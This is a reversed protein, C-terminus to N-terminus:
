ISPRAASESGEGDDRVLLLATDDEGHGARTNMSRLLEDAVLHLDPNDGYCELAAALSEIGDDLDTHRSEVLGDTFMAITDGPNIEVDTQGYDHAALGLPMGPPLDIRRVGGARARVLLPLHGANAVRLQHTGTDLIGYCATAFRPPAPENLLDPIVLDALQADLMGLVEAPSLPAHAAARMAARMQGMVAAATVGRGSVDGIGIAVRRGSVAQVAWWDGGVEVDPAGPLYRAAISLGPIAPPAPPLLAYQLRNAIDRHRRQSYQQAMAAGARAAIDNLFPLDRNEFSRREGAALLLLAGTYRGAVVLPMAAIARAEAARLWNVAAPDLTPKDLIQADVTILVPHGTRLLRDWPSPRERRSPPPPPGLGALAPALSIVAPPVSRADPTRERSAAAIYVAAFDALEPVLTDVFAQLGSSIDSAEALAASIRSLLANRKAALEAHEHGTVDIAAAVVGEPGDPGQLPSLTYSLVVEDGHVDRSYVRQRDVQVVLGKAWVDDFAAVTAAGMEPFVQSLPRGLDRDGFVAKSAANQFVVVHKVGVTVAILAPSHEWAARFTAAARPEFWSMPTDRGPDAM